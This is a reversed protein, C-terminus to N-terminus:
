GGADLVFAGASTVLHVETLGRTGPSVVLPLASTGLWAQLREEDGEVGLAALTVAGARHEVQARGPLPTRPGWQIFFPLWPQEAAEAVGAILWQLLDGSRSRRSGEAVELGLRSATTGLDGTRVAWGLSAGGDLMASVWRGFTSNAAEAPDVVTVLELYTSGLPVLRNATGWGPHRGGEIASLGYLDDFTTAAADLDPVGIVVHDIELDGEGVRM